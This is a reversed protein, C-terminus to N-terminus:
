RIVGAAVFEDTLDGLGHETMIERTHQGVMPAFEVPETPTRSFLPAPRPERLPGAVPHEREIFIQNFQVQKDAPLQGIPNVRAFPVDELAVKKELEALTMEAVLDELLAAVTQKYQQRNLQRKQLRNFREDAALEDLAMARCLGHFERDSVIILNAWGDKARVVIGQSSGLPPRRDIDDGLLIEDAGLDPWAFALCADLMSLEIHQGKGLRYRAFLAATVAQVGTYATIKDTIAQTVGMPAEGQNMGQGFAIGAYCQIIPDYARQHANPGEQGFGSISLYVLSPNDSSLSAYDVGLREVVGPRFNQVIVDASKALAQVIGAAQPAKLDIVISRKGRNLLHFSGSFGNRSSGLHRQIDGDPPEVKIVDAGQDALLSATLPGSVVASLDVVRIGELPGM